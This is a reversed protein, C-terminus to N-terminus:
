VIQGRKKGKEVAAKVQDWAVCCALLFRQEGPYSKSSSFFCYKKFWDSRRLYRYIINYSDFVCFLFHHNKM